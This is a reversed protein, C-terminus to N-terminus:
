HSLGVRRLLDGFRPDSRLSDLRPDVKFRFPAVEHEDLGRDLWSFAQDKEGLYAYDIAVQYSVAWPRHWIDQKDWELQKQWYGRPGSRRYIARLEAVRRDAQRSDSGFLTLTGKMEEIAPEYMGKLMYARYLGSHANLVSADQELLKHFQAIADDYRRAYIFDWGLTLPYRTSLPDLRSAIRIEDLAADVQGSALLFDSYYEHTAPLNPGLQLARRFESGAATWNWDVDLELEGMQAHAEANADDLQLAKETAERLRSIADKLDLVGLAVASSYCDALGVYADAFLPDKQISQQLNEICKKIDPQTMRQGYYRGRLYLDYAEPNVPRASALRKVQQATLRVRISETISRAAEAQVLLIDRLDRDYSAAWLHQDTAADVLQATIRVHDGSRVVSGEVVADVNLERAIQPLSKKTAKYQMASTRSIVRLGGIQALETTLEDTMGDAFYEQEPDNSLNQLPLVALSRIPAATRSRLWDRAGAVNFGLV